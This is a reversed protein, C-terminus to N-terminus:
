LIKLPTICDKSNNTPKNVFNSVEYADLDNDIPNNLKNTSFDNSTDDLYKMADNVSLVFPMRDHIFSLNSSAAKTIINCVKINNGERNEIRWIGAFCILENVPLSIYYPSKSNLNRKWEYYGNALIICKRKLYSDKFLLKNNITELRSNIINQLVNNQKNIFSYGWNFSDIIKKGHHSFIININQGPSINYSNESFNNIESIDFIKEIKRKKNISTFRGCM